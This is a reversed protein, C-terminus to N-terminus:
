CSDRSETMIIQDEAILRSETQKPYSAADRTLRIGINRLLLNDGDEFFSIDITSMDSIVWLDM